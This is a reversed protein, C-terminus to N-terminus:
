TTLAVDVLAKAHLRTTDLCPIPTHTSDVLLPLETCGLIVAQAGHAAHCAILDVLRQRLEDTVRGQELDEFIMRHLWARHQPGPVVIDAGTARIADRMFGQQMTEGTGLLLVTRLGQRRIEDVLPTAIHVFRAQTQEQLYAVRTHAANSCLALVQAGASQLSRTASLYLTRLASEDSADVLARVEAFDLSELSLRASRLGGLRQAVEENLCRYYIETSRWGVGGILGIKKM